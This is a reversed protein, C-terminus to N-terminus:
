RMPFRVSPSLGLFSNEIGSVLYGSDSCITTKEFITRIRRVVYAMNRDNEAWSQISICKQTHLTRKERNEVLETKYSFLLANTAKM